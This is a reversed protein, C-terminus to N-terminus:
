FGLTANTRSIADGTHTTGLTHDTSGSLATILAIEHLPFMTIWHYDM